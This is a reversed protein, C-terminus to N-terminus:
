PTAKVNGLEKKSDERLKNIDIMYEVDLTMKANFADEQNKFAFFRGQSRYQTAKMNLLRMDKRITQLKEQTIHSYYRSTNDSKVKVIYAAVDQWKKKKLSDWFNGLSYEKESLNSRIIANVLVPKNDFVQTETIEQEIEIIKLDLLNKIGSYRSNSSALFMMQDEAKERTDFKKSKDLSSWVYSRSWYKKGQAICYYTHKM